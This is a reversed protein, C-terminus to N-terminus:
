SCSLRLGKRQSFWYTLGAGMNFASKGGSETFVAMRTYGGSVFPVMRRTRSQRPSRLSANNLFEMCRM